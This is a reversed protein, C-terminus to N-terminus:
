FHGKGDINFYIIIILIISSVLIMYWKKMDSLQLYAEESWKQEFFAVLLGLTITVSKKFKILNM